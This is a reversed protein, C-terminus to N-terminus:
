AKHALRSAQSQQTAESNPGGDVVVPRQCCCEIFLPASEVNYNHVSFSGLNKLTDLRLIAFSQGIIKEAEDTSEFGGSGFEDRDWCDCRM